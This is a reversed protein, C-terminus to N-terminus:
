ITQLHNTMILSSNCHLTAKQNQREEGAKKISLNTILNNIENLM